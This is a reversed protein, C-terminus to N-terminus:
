YIKIMKDDPRCYNNQTREQIGELLNRISSGICFTIMEFIRIRILIRTLRKM